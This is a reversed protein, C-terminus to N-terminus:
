IYFFSSTNQYIAERNVVGLGNNRWEIDKKENKYSVKLKLFERIIICFFFSLKM